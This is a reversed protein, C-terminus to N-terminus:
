AGIPGRTDEMGGFSCGVNSINSYHAGACATRRRRRPLSKWFGANEVVVSSRVSAPAEEYGYLAQQPQPEGMASSHVEWGGQPVESLAEQVSPAEQRLPSLIKVLGEAGLCAEAVGDQLELVRCPM